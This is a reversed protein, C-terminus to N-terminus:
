VLLLSHLFSPYIHVLQQGYLYALITLGITIDAHAFESGYSPADKGRFPIAVRHCSTALAPDLARERLWETDTAASPWIL